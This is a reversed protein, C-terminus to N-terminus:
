DEAEGFIAEYVCIVLLMCLVIFVLVCLGVIDALM